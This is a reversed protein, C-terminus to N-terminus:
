SLEPAFEERVKQLLRRFDEDEQDSKWKNIFRCVIQLNGPEYHGSSNIRDLSCLMAPDDYFGDCQLVLGSLACLGEQDDLLALLYQELDNRSAFGFDKNKVTTIAQQGNAKLTTEWATMAMRVAANQRPTGMTVTSARKGDAVKRWDERRHWPDLDGGLILTKAYAAYDDSMKQLTAETAFFAKAKPHLVRWSLRQGILNSRSWAMCDKSIHHVLDGINAEPAHTPHLTVTAAAQASVTWWIDDGSRHVWLDAETTEVIKGVNYWRSAVQRTPRLGKATRENKMSHLIFGEKDNADRFPQSSTLEFTTIKSTALCSPWLANGIGFNAVFIRDALEVALKSPPNNQTVLMHTSNLLSFIPNM